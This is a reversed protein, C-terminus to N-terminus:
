VFTDRNQVYLDSSGSTGAKGKRVTEEILVHAENWGIHRPATMPSAGLVPMQCMTLWVVLASVEPMGIVM